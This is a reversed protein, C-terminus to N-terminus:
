DSFFFIFLILNYTRHHMGLERGDELTWCSDDLIIRKHLDGDIIPPQGKLGVQVFM